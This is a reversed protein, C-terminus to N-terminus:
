ALRGCNITAWEKTFASYNFEDVRKLVTRDDPQAVYAAVGACLEKMQGCFGTYGDASRFVYGYEFSIRDDWLPMFGPALLHLAKATATGSEKKSKGGRLARTFESFLLAVADEDEPGFSDISRDRFANVKSMHNSICGHLDGSDYMGFHYFGMHWSRLLRGIGEAMEGSDGWGDRILRLAEFYVPGRRERQEYANIGDIFEDHSPIYM